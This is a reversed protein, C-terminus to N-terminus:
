VAELALLPEGANVDAGDAVLLERVRAREPLGTGGYTVRHFTKMVELLCVTAGVALEAGATVFPPKDPAARGYFRGSTPARFVLRHETDATSAAVATAAIATASARPDLTLLVAGFDVATRALAPDRVAVVAGLASDPAVLEIAKGLVELDGLVSGMRVVDGIGLRSHFLGPSPSVLEIREGALRATVVQKGTM